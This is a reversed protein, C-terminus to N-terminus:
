NRRNRDNVIGILINKVDSVDQHIQLMQDQLAKHNDSYTDKSVFNESAYTVLEAKLNRIETETEQLKVELKIVDETRAFIKLSLIALIVAVVYPAYTQINEMM